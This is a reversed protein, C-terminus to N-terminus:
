FCIFDFPTPNLGVGNKKIQLKEEKSKKVRIVRKAGFNELYKEL